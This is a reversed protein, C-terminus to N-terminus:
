GRVRRDRFMAGCLMTPRTQARAGSDEFPSSSWCVSSGRPSGVPV